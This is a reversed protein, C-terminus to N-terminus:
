LSDAVWHLFAKLEKLSTKKGPRSKGKPVRTIPGIPGITVIVGGHDSGETSHRVKTKSVRASKSKKSAAM